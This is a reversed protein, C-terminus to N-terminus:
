FGYSKEKKTAKIFYSIFREAWNLGYRDGNYQWKEALKIHQLFDTTPSPAYFSVMEGNSASFIM